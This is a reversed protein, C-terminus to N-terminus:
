PSTNIEPCRLMKNQNKFSREVLFEYIYEGFTHSKQYNECVFHVQLGIFSYSLNRGDGVYNLLSGQSRFPQSAGWLELIFCFEQLFEIGLGERVSEFAARRLWQIGLLELNELKAFQVSSLGAQSVTGIRPAM